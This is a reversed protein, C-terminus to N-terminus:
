NEIADDDYVAAPAAIKIVVHGCGKELDSQGSEKEEEPAGMGGDFALSEKPESQQSQLPTDNTRAHTRAHATSLVSTAEEEECCSGDM